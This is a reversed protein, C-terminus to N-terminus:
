GTEENAILQPSPRYSVVEGRITRDMLLHGYHEEVMGISAHGLERSVTFLTVPAGGETTQIRHSAYTHRLWYPTVASDLGAREVVSKFAKKVGRVPEGARQPSPFLPSSPHM